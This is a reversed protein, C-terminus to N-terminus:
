FGYNQLVLVGANYTKMAEQYRDQRQQPTLGETKNINRAVRNAAAMAAVHGNLSVSNTRAALWEEESPWMESPLEYSSVWGSAKDVCQKECKADVISVEFAVPHEKKFKPDGIGAVSTVFTPDNTM